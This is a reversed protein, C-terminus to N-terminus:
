WAARVSVTDYPKCWEIVEKLKSGAEASAFDVGIPKQGKPILRTDAAFKAPKYPTWLYHFGPRVGSHLSVSHLTLDFPKGESLVVMAVSFRPVTVRDDGYAIVHLLCRLDDEATRRLALDQAARLDAFYAFQDGPRFRGDWFPEASSGSARGVVARPNFMVINPSKAALDLAAPPDWLLPLKPNPAISQLADGAAWVRINMELRHFRRGLRPRPDFTLLIFHAQRGKWMGPEVWAIGASVSAPIEPSKNANEAGDDERKAGNWEFLRGLWRLAAGWSEDKMGVDHVKVGGGRLEKGVDTGTLIITRAEYSRLCSKKSYSNDAAAEDFLQQPTPTSALPKRIRLRSLTM